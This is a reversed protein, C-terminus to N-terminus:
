RAPESERSGAGPRWRRLDTKSEYGQKTPFTTLEITMGWPTRAYCWQGGEGIEPELGFPSPGVLVTGGAAVIRACSAEMDDTYFSVHQLGLDCPRAPLAQEIGAYEFLEINPGDPLVLMRVTTIVAGPPVGLRMEADSGGIPTSGKPLHDYLLKANFVDEFFRTATVVDPVTVGIHEIGRAM